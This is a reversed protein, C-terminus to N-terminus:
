YSTAHHSDRESLKILAERGKYAKAIYDPMTKTLHAKLEKEQEAFVLYKKLLDDDNKFERVDVLLDDYRGFIDKCIGKSKTSYGVAFTPVYTSYAAITAHTRCGIFLDCKSILHKLQMCNYDDSVVRIRSKSYTGISQILEKITDLDDNDQMRVHPVFLIKYETEKLIYKVIRIFNNMIANNYSDYRRILPSINIGIVKSDAFFSDYSSVKGAPLIFAPDACKVVTDSIGRDGLIEYTLSERATILSYRKLEDIVKSSLLPEELSCGWLVTPIGACTLVKSFESLVHQMGPYCYNDGGISLAITNHKHQLMGRHQFCLMEVDRDSGFIKEKAACFTKVIMGPEKTHSKNELISVFESLEYLEDNKKDSSYLIIDESSDNLMQATSRVIAECGHNYCGSHPYLLYKM